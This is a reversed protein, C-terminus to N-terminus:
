GIFLSLLTYIVLSFLASLLLIISWKQCVKTRKKKSTTVLTPNRREVLAKHLEEKLDIKAQELLMSLDHIAVVSTLTGSLLLLISLAFVLRIYLCSTQTSHLAILAGLISGEVLLISQCLNLQRETSRNTLDVLMQINKMWDENTM